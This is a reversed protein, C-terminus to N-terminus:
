CEWGQGSSTSLPDEIKVKLPDSIRIRVDDRPRTQTLLASVLDLLGRDAGWLYSLAAKAAVTAFNADPGHSIAAGPKTAYRVTNASSQM